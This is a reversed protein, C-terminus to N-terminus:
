SIKNYIFIILKWRSIRKSETRKNCRNRLNIHAIQKIKPHVPKIRQRVARMTVYALSRSKRHPKLSIILSKSKFQRFFKINKTNSRRIYINRLLANPTDQSNIKDRNRSQLKKEKFRLAELNTHLDIQIKIKIM